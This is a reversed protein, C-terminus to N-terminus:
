KVIKWVLERSNNRLNVTSLFLSHFRNDGKAIYEAM